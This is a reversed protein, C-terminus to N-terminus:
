LLFMLAAAAAFYGAVTAWFTVPREDRGVNRGWLGDRAYVEGRGIAWTAYAAVAAGLLQAV